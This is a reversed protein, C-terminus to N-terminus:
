ETITIDPKITFFEGEESKILDVSNLQVRKEYTEIQEQVDAILLGGVQTIPKDYLDSDIGMARNYAVEGKTISLINQVCNEPNGNGVSRM